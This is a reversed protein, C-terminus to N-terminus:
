LTRRRNLVNQAELGNSVDGAIVYAQIPQPNEADFGSPQLTQQGTQQQGLNIIPGAGAGRSSGGSGGGDSIKSPSEFKSRAITAIQAAAFAGAIGAQIAPYAPFLTTIPSSAATRFANITAEVGSITASALSLAKQIKFNKKAREEDESAFAQALSALAQLGQSAVQLKASQVDQELQKKEEAIDKELQIRKEAFADRVAQKEEESAKLNELEALTQQEAIDLAKRAAEEENTINEQNLQNIIDNISKKRDLEEQDLERNLQASELRVIQAQTETEILTREAEALQSKLERRESDTKALSLARNLTDRELRAQEVANDALQENAENVKDLAEKREEYGRTTDESIKKQTELTQTLNANEVVLEATREKLRNQADVLANSQKVAKTIAPALDNYVDVATEVVANVGDVVDGLLTAEVFLKKTAGTADELAGSFDGEFLKKVSSALLGFGDLLANVKDTINQKIADGFGKISELPDEFLPKFNDIIKSIYEGIKEFVVGVVALSGQIVKAGADTNNFWEVLRAGLDLFIGLGTAKLATGIGQFAKKGVNGARQLLSGSKKASKGVDEASEAAEENADKIKKASEVVEEAGEEKYVIKEEIVAM